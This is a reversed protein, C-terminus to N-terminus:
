PQLLVEWKAIVKQLSRPLAKKELDIFQVSSNLGQYTTTPYDALAAETLYTLSNLNPFRQTELVRKFDSLQEPTLTKIVVPAFRATPSSQYQTLKGDSTLAIRVMRGALDGSTSSQFVVNTDISGVTGFPEFAVRISRKAGSAAKNQVIRSADQSVHYVYTQTPSTVIAKWGLIINATCVQTPGEYIDMCGGFEHAKIATIRLASSMTKTDRAVQKLLKKAIAQPLGVRDPNELRLTNGTRDTRYTWSQMRDSVTIRWGPVIAMTCAEKGRPLGLCGDPWNQESVSVVNIKQVGFQQKVALRVAQLVSEDPMRRAQDASPATQSHAPLHNLDLALGITLSSIFLAALLKSKSTPQRSIM